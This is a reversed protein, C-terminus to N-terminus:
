KVIHGLTSWFISFNAMVLIGISTITFLVTVEDLRFVNNKIRELKEHLMHIASRQENQSLSFTFLYLAKFILLIIIPFIIFTAALRGDWDLSLIIKQYVGLAFAFVTTSIGLRLLKPQLKESAKLLLLSILSLCGAIFLCVSLVQFIMNNTKAYLYIALLVFAFSSLGYIIKEQIPTESNELKYLYHAAGAIIQPQNRERDLKAEYYKEASEQIIPFKRIIWSALTNVKAVQKLEIGDDLLKYGTKKTISEVYKGGEQHKFLPIAGNDNYTGVRTALSKKLLFSMLFVLEGQYDLLSTENKIDPMNNFKIM